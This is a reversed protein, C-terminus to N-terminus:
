MTFNLYDVLRGSWIRTWLGRPEAVSHFGEWAVVRPDREASGVMCGLRSVSCYQRWQLALLLPLCLRSHHAKALGALDRWQHEAPLLLQGSRLTFLIFAKYNLYQMALLIADHSTNAIPGPLGSATRTNVLPETRNPELVPWCGSGSQRPPNTVQVPCLGV